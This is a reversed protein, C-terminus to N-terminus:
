RKGEFTHSKETPSITKVKTQRLFLNQSESEQIIRKSTKRSHIEGVRARTSSLLSERPFRELYFEENPRTLMQSKSIIETISVGFLLYQM